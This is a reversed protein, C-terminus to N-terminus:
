LLVYLATAQTLMRNTQTLMCRSQTLMCRSQTLMRNSQTLVCKSRTLMCKSRTLMRTSETLVCKSRTLSCSSEGFCAGTISWATINPYGYPVSQCVATPSQGAVPGWTCNATCNSDITTGACASSWAGDTLATEPSTACDTPPDAPPAYCLVACRPLSKNSAVDVAAHMVLRKNCLPLKDIEAPGLTCGTWACRGRAVFICLAVLFCCTVRVKV